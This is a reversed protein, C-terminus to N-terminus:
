MQTIYQIGLNLSRLRVLPLPQQTLNSFITLDFWLAANTSVPNHTNYWLGISGAWEAIMDALKKDGTSADPNVQISQMPQMIVPLAVNGTGTNLQYIYQCSMLFSVTDQSNEELLADFLNTLQTTLSAYNHNGSPANITSIDVPTDSDTTPHYPNSFEVTGTTYIFPESSPKGPVLEANRRIFAITASDQRALINMAPIIVTRDQIVQGEAAPLVAGDKTYYYCFDGTCAQTYSHREYGKIDVLPQGIGDPPLGYVSVILAQVENVTASGEQIYFNYPLVVTSTIRNSGSPMALMNGQAATVVHSVLATYSTLATSVTDLLPDGIATGATVQTLQSELVAYVSPSVTVFEALQPFADEIGMLMRASNDMVNFNITFDLQDQPYHIPLSYEINYNWNLLQSIDAVDPPIASEGSQNVMSPATPFERLVMPVKMKGLNGSLPSDNISLPTVFSLWTSAEYGDINPLTSIQHEISSGAFSLDLDVYPLLEKNSGRVVQPSSILFPLTVTQSTELSLKPSTFTISDSNNGENIEKLVVKTFPPMIMNGTMDTFDANITVQTSDAIAQGNLKLIIRRTDDADIGASVVNLGDSVTFNSSMGASAENPPNTFVLYIITNDTANVMTDEFKFNRNISGYLRPAIDTAIDASVTAHFQIAAQTTYANGLKELLLQKFSEKVADANATEDKFVPIMWEKVIDALAKKGALLDQLYTTQKKNDVLQIAATFEPSLINDISSFFQNGWQDMDIGTFDVYVSPTNFDIGTKESYYYIPVQRRSELKNSIPRPAFMDPDAPDNITYAIPTLANKNLGLRVAWTEKDNGANERDTGTAIRLEYKGPQLLAEEFLAAFTNLSHTNGGSTDSLPSVETVAQLIGGTTELDGSAANKTRKVTFSLDLRFIQAANLNAPDIAFTLLHAADPAPVDTLGKSRNELFLYISTIWNEVLASIQETSLTYGQQLLTTDVAYAIGNPDTLQYWLQKYVSLDKKAQEIVTSTAEAPIEPYSFQAIGTYTETQDTNSINNISLTVLLNEPVNDVQITVTQNDSALTINQISIGQDLSYNAHDIASIEDLPETFWATISTKGAAKAWMLGQYYSDGFSLNLQLQPDQKVDTNVEWSAAISPWQNLGILADTYGTLVPPMNLRSNGSPQSLTTIIRNGYLDQWAYDIQLLGGLGHYPSDTQDPMNAATLVVNKAFRTYPISQTYSWNDGEALTKPYSMKDNTDQDETEGSPTAPLGLNSASFYNNDAVQYSLMNYTNLLFLRGYDPNSPDDPIAGPVPREAAIGAVGPAVASTRIDPGGSIIIQQNDAFIGAVQQNKGGLAALDEGYYSAISEFTNGGNSTGVTVTIEPLYLATYVPLVDPWTTQLPNAAKIADPTTGFYAAITDLNGGPANGEPRVEYVGEDILLQKGARLTLGDNDTVVDAVNGYYKYALDSLTQASDSPLSYQYPDAEAFLVAHTTDIAEGTALVNMYNTVNNRLASDDSATYLVLLSIVAENKDNFIRDPLGSSSGSNYYYLYYGGGRTISAQWLLRIFDTTENLLVMAEQQEATLYFLASLSDPRTETSLNVQAIGMTLSNLADTQIGETTTGNSDVGYAVTLTAILSKNDGIGSVMKELVEVNSGDAGMIEYTTLTNPSDTVVPVKKITFSVLSGYGYYTVPTNVMTRSAEDYRGIQMKVRPNVARTQPDPLQLLTDPLQWLSLAPVGGADGGYPMTFASASNWNIESTFPYTAEKTIFTDQAGLLSLSVDLINATAYGKVASIQRADFSGPTLPLILQSPNSGAFILWSLALTGSLQINFNETGLNPIQFQQGTLAYLGAYAPLTLVGGNDTVWMGKYEPTIGETPLRLGAMYYRSTMGSLHQLGNTAQIENILEGTQFQQLNAINIYDGTSKDFLDSVTGNEAPAALQQQTINYQSAIKNLTDGSATTNNFSPLAITAVPLLLGALGTINGNNILDGVSVGIAQSVDNLSQGALTKYPDKGPYSITIGPSLTNATNQNATALEKGTFGNYFISQAAISDFTDSAQVIYTSGTIRLHKGANLGASVNDTFLAEITYLDTGAKDNVWNVIDNITQNDQLYYKFDKLSERASQLMQRCILLFYDSYIFSAMSQGDADDMKLTQLNGTQEDKEVQVALENFYRRLYETYASSTSNYGAFDYSIGKYDTGYDPLTLLMEPPVPFYTADTEGSSPANVTVTFQNTMFANVDEVTIPTPNATDSLYDLLAALQLDTVITADVEASTMPGSQIAAIAWRFVQKGLLEFSTDIGAGYAKQKGNEKDDQPPPVSELFLMAIYCAMQQSVDAANDGAMTLGLGAYATLQVPTAAKGLNSWVPSTVARMAMLEKQDYYFRRRRRQLVPMGATLLQVQETTTWPPTGGIAKITIGEQIRASFSFSIKIKFLGLNITIRLSVSVSATISLEIPEYPAFTMQVLLRIDINVDAKVIAFDVTGYLKGIIGVTGRFWFYYSTELQTNNGSGDSLLYPNWKALIGELIAVATLSFGAKLIGVDFSYGFGFQVGFGFVLVPNFTGNTAAPVRNTTASSLKGFYVGASGMVPIPIGVPTWILTQFTFSRSFDEKWPFGIDVQFDGNTFVAIGFVPLTINFQGMNIKRMVDPLVIEAQYVGVSDSIKKYMIQFDLGKFIKAPEGELAIRLAYLYPDNFVIQMTIFYQAAAATTAALAVANSKDGGLQLLGFDMGTLWSSNADFHIPPIKGPKTEPLTSMCAIAAQVNDATKFCDLTVHQGLALMRLDLYKSGQGPPAPTTEPKAANWSPIEGWAATVDLTVIVGNNDPNPDKSNYSVSIGNITVFGLNIPGIGVNFSVKNDTFDYVLSLNNLPISNLVNWPSALGFSTGTAWSVMIEVLSGITTTEKFKLTAIQHIKGDINKEEVEGTLIGWTIGYAKYDPNFNYFATINIKNWIIDASIAGYYGATASKDKKGYGIQATGAVTLDIFDIHWPAATKAGFEWYSSVTNITFSLGDIGYNYEESPAWSNGIYYTLMDGIKVVGSTQKSAFTWGKGTAYMGSLEMVIKASNPLVTIQGGIFVTNISNNSNVNFSLNDISFIGAVVLPKDAELIADIQYYKQSPIYNYNFETVATSLDLEGGFLALLDSLQITGDTLGGYLTFDPYGGVMTITGNGITFSGTVLFNTTRNSVDAVNYVSIDVTPTIAFLPNQSITWPSNTTMEFSMYDFSLSSSNYMLQVEKLGFGALQSLPAPLVQVLNIGGAAQFISAIGPYNGDFAASLLWTSEGVPYEIQIGVSTGYSEITGLIGGQVPFGGENVKMTFGPKRFLIWPINEITWVQDATATVETIVPGSEATYVLDIGMKVDLFSLTTAGSVTVKIINGDADKEAIINEEPVEISFANGTVKAFFDSFYTKPLASLLSISGDSWAAILQDYVEQLTLPGPEGGNVDLGTIYLDGNDGLTSSHARTRNYPQVKISGSSDISIGSHEAYLSEESVGLLLADVAVLGIMLKDHIDKQYYNGLTAFYQNLIHAPNVARLTATTIIALTDLYVKPNSPAKKKLFADFSLDRLSTVWTKCYQAIDSYNSAALSSPYNTADNTGKKPVQMFPRGLSIVMSSTGQGEFLGPLTSNGYFYNYVDQPVSGISIVFLQKNGAGDLAATIEASIDVYAVGDYDKLLVLKYANDIAPTVYETLKNILADLNSPSYAAFLDNDIYTASIVNKLNTLAKIGNNIDDKIADLYQFINSDPRAPDSFHLIVLPKNLSQIIDLASLVLNLSIEGADEKFQHLGYAPLLSMASPDDYYADYVAKVNKTRTALDHNFVQSTYWTWIHESVSGVSDQTFKYALSNFQISEKSLNFKDLSGTTQVASTVNNKNLMEWLYPELRLFYDVKLKEAFNDTMLDAGGTFGYRIQPPEVTVPFPKFTIKTCSSYSITTTDINLPNLDPLLIALKQATEAGGAYYVVINGTYTTTNIIRKMINVTTAQHGYNLSGDVYFRLEEEARIYGLMEEISIGTYKDRIETAQSFLAVLDQFLSM